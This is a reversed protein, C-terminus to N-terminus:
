ASGTHELVVGNNLVNYFSFRTDYRWSGINFVKQINVDLQTWYPLFKVSSLPVMPYWAGSTSREVTTINDPVIRGGLVCPAVCHGPQGFLEESYSNYKPNSSTRSISFGEQLGGWDGLGGPYAQLSFGFQM